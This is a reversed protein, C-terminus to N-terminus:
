QLSRIFEKPLKDINMYEKYIELNEIISLHNNNEMENEIEKSIKKIGLYWLVFKSFTVKGAKLLSKPKYFIASPTQHHMLQVWPYILIQLKPLAEKNEKLRQTIVAVANGGLIHFILGIQKFLFNIKVVM